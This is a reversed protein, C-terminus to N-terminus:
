KTLLVDVLLLETDEKAELQLMEEDIIKAAGLAPIQIGNVEVPGGELVYLYAGWDLELKHNIKKVLRLSVPFYPQM